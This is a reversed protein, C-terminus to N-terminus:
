NVWLWPPPCDEFEAWGADPLAQVIAAAVKSRLTVDDPVQVQIHGHLDQPNLDHMALLNGVEPDSALKERLGDDPLLAMLRELRERHLDLLTLVLSLAAHRADPDRLSNVERVLHSFSCEGM